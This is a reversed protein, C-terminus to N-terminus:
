AHRPLCLRARVPGAGGYPSQTGGGFGGSQPGPGYGGPQPGNGFPSPQPYPNSAPFVGGGGSPPIPSSPAGYPPANFQNYGPQTYPAGGGRAYALALVLTLSSYRVM